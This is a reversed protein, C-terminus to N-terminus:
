FKEKGKNLYSILENFLSFGSHNNGVNVNINDFEISVTQSLRLESAELVYKINNFLADASERQQEIFDVLGHKVRFNSFFLSFM